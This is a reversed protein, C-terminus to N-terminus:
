FSPFFKLCVPKHTSIVQGTATLMGTQRDIAYIEITDADRAAVLLYRGNPTIAFNRPHPATPQYGAPALLGTKADVKFIAIGDAQLRNSAYLFRGDPSIHIDGSGRAGISDATVRQVMRPMNNGTDMVNVKGDLEDIIYARKLSPHFEVHRPGAGPAIYVDRMAASDVLTVGGRLPFTHIRDTGLDTIWMSRKDPTFTVFHAHPQQQRATDPGNGSFRIIHPDGCPMGVSDLAYITASGGTYNATILHSEGPSLALHCPSGAFTLRSDTLAMTQQERDLVITNVTSTMGEDEGVSYIKTGDANFIVFSPNSIGKLESVHRWQGTLQNFEYLNIGDADAPAYSGTLLLLNDDSAMSPITAAALAGALAIANCVSKMTMFSKGTRKRCLYHIYGFSALKM